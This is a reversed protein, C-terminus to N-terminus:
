ILKQVALGSFYGALASTATIFVGWVMDVMSVELSWGKITALNTMDYTGFGVFGLLAGSLLATSWTGSNVAPMVAFFSVGTLYIIYFAGAAVFNPQDLLLEGIRSRYFKSSGTLWLFDLGLFVVATVLYSIVYTMDTVGRKVILDWSCTSAVAYDM